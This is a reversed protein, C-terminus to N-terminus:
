ETKDTIRPTWNPGPKEELPIILVTEDQATVPRSTKGHEGPTIHLGNPDTGLYKAPKEPEPEPLTPPAPLEEKGEIIRIIKELVAITQKQCPLLLKQAQLEKIYSLATQGIYRHAADIRTAMTALGRNATAYEEITKVLQRRSVPGRRQGPIIIRNSM